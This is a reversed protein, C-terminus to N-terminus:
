ASGPFFHLTAVIVLVPGANFLAHLAMSAGIGRRTRMWGLVLGTVWQPLVLFPLLWLTTRDLLFNHLHVAAFIVAVLHYIAGYVRVYERRWARAWHGHAIRGRRLPRWAALLVIALVIWGLVRLPNMVLVVALPVMWWAQGPRRMCYRFLLEEAVPAWLIAILVPVHEADLRHEAGLKQAVHLSLPGFLAANVLWLVAAWALLRGVSVGPWWDSKLSGSARRGPSRRLDPHRLFRWFDALDQRFTPPACIARTM